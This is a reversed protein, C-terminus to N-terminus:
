ELHIKEKFRELREKLLPYKKLSFDQELIEKAATKCKAVLVLDKLSEMALDPLGWQKKGSFEGPGRIELDKQALEFGDEAKVMAKLRQQTKRAPSDTLLFCYSQHEARGVRGRLQHLQALGFREAGEIVMVSANPIDIGVEVVSTAVLVKIKNNKFDKMIKEKEKPKMKGHLMEVRLDPFIEKALKEKEEEVAKVDTWSTPQRRKPSGASSAPEIRPCIVFAQRELEVQNRIFDYVRPRESPLVIETLIKKRGRPLENIVSLDLDGYVTLALSRPIPTATMTLLHPVPANQTKRKSNQTLQARQEIGFRHQEDIIVLGLNKFRVSKQILAHTGILIDIQGDLCKALIKQRSAELVEGKLKKAMIKDDQGTLLAITLKFDFLLKAVERFHQKALIETPAMLAVQLEAKATNLAALTAVVTKGSGVEGELLRNMPHSKELDKLIQWASKKQANTLTFPLSKVLKKISPLDIPIPHAKTQLIKIREKLVFLEILFLEEFSLRVKARQALALSDPFHIQWIARPFSLLNFEKLIKEPLFEQAQNKFNALIPRIISRLWRSSLRETEPYVPMLGAIKSKQLSISFGSETIKEYTPNNLYLGKKGQSVRGAMIVESGAELIDTIYPKAFWVVRIAGTQDGVVAQTLTMRKRWALRSKIDLIKGRISVNTQPRLQALPVFNSFDEYRLPLHYLLDRVTKIGLKKLRKELVKGIRPVKEIPTSLDM